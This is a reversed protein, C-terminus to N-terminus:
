GYCNRWATSGFTELRLANLYRVECPLFIVLLSNHGDTQTHHSLHAAEGDASEDHIAIAFAESVARRRKSLKRFRCSRPILRDV